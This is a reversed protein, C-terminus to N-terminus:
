SIGGASGEEQLGPTEADWGQRHEAQGWCQQGARFLWPCRELPGASGRRGSSDGTRGEQFAPFPALGPTLHTSPVSGRQTLGAVSAARGWSQSCPQLLLLKKGLCLCFRPEAVLM